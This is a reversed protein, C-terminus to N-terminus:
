KKKGEIIKDLKDEMRNVQWQLASMRTNLVEIEIKMEIMKSQDSKLHDLDSRMILVNAYSFGTLFVFGAIKWFWPLKSWWSSEGSLM